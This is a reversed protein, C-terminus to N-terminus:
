QKAIERVKLGLQNFRLRVARSKREDGLLLKAMASFDGDATKFLALFYQREVSNAVANLSAGVEIRVPITGNESASRAQSKQELLGTSGALLQGILGPDVQLRAASIAMGSQVADVAGVLTFTVMNHMVMQLERINGPWKHRRLLKWAPEPLTIELAAPEDSRKPKPRGIVLHVATDLPLGVARLVQDRLEAVEPDNVALETLKRAFYPLDGPRERLPPIRMRTAPNLRMYLDSRFRGTRVADDLPLNSSAVVKVDLPIEKSSGLPRVRRDQLVLLLQKQVELPINQVEDIFLTGKDAMEFVGRRDAVSGTYAGRVAGFLHAAILETPISALDLVVFPGKRGSNLHIFQEALFSKGTGTEGELIVPMSGRALVMLRRRLERMSADTGWLVRSEPLEDQADRWASNIRIRLADLDDGDLFYTMSQATLEDAVDVLSLDEVATLLVVPLKPFRQRIERLIAVGQYRKNQRTTATEGLSFLREQPVDFKMDLLVVDIRRRHAALFTLADPGDKLCPIQADVQPDVLDFEPMQAIVDAYTTGDDIVLVRPKSM